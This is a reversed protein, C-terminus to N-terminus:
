VSRKVYTKVIYDHYAVFGLLTEAGVKKIDEPPVYFNVGPLEICYSLKIGGVAKMWDISSGGMIGLSLDAPTGIRYNTGRHTKM